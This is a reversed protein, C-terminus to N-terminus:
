NFASSFAVWEIARLPTVEYGIKNNTEEHIPKFQNKQAIEHCNKLYDRYVSPTRIRRQMAKPGESWFRYVRSDWIAYEDPNVFHLLKSAGVLSNNIKKALVELERDDISEGDKAKNVIFLVEQFSSAPGKLELMTPMWGYVFHAGVVFSKEDIINIERFFDLFKPYSRIYSKNQVSPAKESARMIDELTFPMRSGLMTM